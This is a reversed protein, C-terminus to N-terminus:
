NQSTEDEIQFNLADFNTTQTPLSLAQN